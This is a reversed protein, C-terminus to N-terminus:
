TKRFQDPGKGGVHRVRAVSPKHDPDLAHARAIAEAQTDFLRIARDSGSRKLAFKGKGRPEVFLPGKVM